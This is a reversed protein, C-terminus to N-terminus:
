PQTRSLPDSSTRPPASSPSDMADSALTPVRGFWFLIGAYWKPEPESLANTIVLFDRGESDIVDLRVASCDRCFWARSPTDEPVALRRRLTAEEESPLATWNCEVRDFISLRWRAPSAAPGRVARRVFLGAVWRVWPQKPLVGGMLDLGGGESDTCELRIVTCHPCSWARQLEGGAPLHHMKSWELEAQGQPMAQWNHGRLFFSMAFRPQNLGATKARRQLTSNVVRSVLYAGVLALISFRYFTAWAEKAGALTFLALSVLGYAFVVAGAIVTAPVNRRIRPWRETTRM